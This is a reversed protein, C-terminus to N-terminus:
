YVFLNGKKFQIQFTSLCVKLNNKSTDNNFVDVYSQLYKVFDRAQIKTGNVKKVVLKEHALLSPVLEKVYKLFEADIDTLDGTFNRARAVNSGPYPLLYASIHEFSARIGDRLQHMETTQENTKTILEDIVKQGKFGYGDTEDAYPWDRVIFLLNQFPKKNSQKLFFCFWLSKLRFRIRNLCKNQFISVISISLPLIFYLNACFSFLAVRAM